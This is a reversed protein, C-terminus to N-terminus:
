KAGSRRQTVMRKTAGKGFQKPNSANFAKGKDKGFQAAAKPNNGTTTKKLM